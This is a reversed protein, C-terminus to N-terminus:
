PIVTVGGALCAREAFELFGSQRNEAAFAVARDAVGARIEGVFFEMIRTHCPSVASQRVFSPEWYGPVRAVITSELCRGEALDCPGGGVHVVAAQGRQFTNDVEIGLATMLVWIEVHLDPRSM